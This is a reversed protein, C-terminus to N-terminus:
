RRQRGVWWVVGLWAPWRDSAWLRSGPPADGSREVGRLAASLLFVGVSTVAVALLVDPHWSAVISNSVLALLAGVVYGVVSLSAVTLAALQLVSLNVRAATRSEIATM